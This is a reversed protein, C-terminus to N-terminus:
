YVFPILKRVRRRYAAYEPFRQALWAEERRSKLDMLAFLAAAYALTLWCGVHLAWGFALIIGGGYMPHRVVAYPGTLRLKTGDKPYPSPTLARGLSLGGAVLLAGGAVMLVDGVARLARPMRSLGRPGFFVLAILVVQAVVLWEGRSGRWWAGRERGAM